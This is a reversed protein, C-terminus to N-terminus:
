LVQYPCNAPVGTFYLQTKTVGGSPGPRGDKYQCAHGVPVHSLPVLSSQM